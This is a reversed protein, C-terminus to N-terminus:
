CKVNVIRVIVATDVGKLRIAGHVARWLERLHKELVRCRCAVHPNM